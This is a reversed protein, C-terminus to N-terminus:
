GVRKSNDRHVGLGLPASVGVNNSQIERVTFLNIHTEVTRIFTGVQGIRVRDDFRLLEENTFDQQSVETVAIEENPDSLSRYYCLRCTNDRQRQSFYGYLTTMVVPKKVVFFLHVQCNKKYTFTFLIFISAVILLKTSLRVFLLSTM